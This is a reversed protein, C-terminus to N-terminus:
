RMIETKSLNNWHNQNLTSFYKTLWELHVPWVNVYETDIIAIRGDKSYPINGVHSDSLGGVRIMTHLAKLCPFTMAKNLKELSVNAHCLDLDKVVLIFDKPFTKADARPRRKQPVPYIWKTPVKMYQNYGYKNLLGQITKAGKARLVWLPWESEPYSDLYLKVLYGPLLPHQAVVLGHNIQKHIINFGSKELSKYSKLIRRSRCIKDLISKFPHTEPMLYPTVEAWTRHSIRSSYKVTKGKAVEPKIPISNQFEIGFLCSCPDIM